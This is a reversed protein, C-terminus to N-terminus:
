FINLGSYYEDIVDKDKLVLVEPIDEDFKESFQQLAADIVIVGDDEECFLCYRKPFLGVYHESGKVFCQQAPKIEIDKNTDSYEIEEELWCLIENNISDCRNEMHYNFQNLVQHSVSRIYEESFM